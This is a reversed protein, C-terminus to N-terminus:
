ICNSTTKMWYRNSYVDHIRTILIDFIKIQERTNQCFEKWDPQTWTLSTLAPEFLSAVRVLHPLLLPRVELKVRQATAVFEEIVLQLSNAVMIFHDRKALIALAVIPINFNLKALCDAERFLLVIRSELNVKIKGTRRDTALLPRGKSLTHIYNSKSRDFKDSDIIVTKLLRRHDMFESADLSRFYGISIPKLNRASPRLAEGFWRHTTVNKFSPSENCFYNIRKSTSQSLNRM